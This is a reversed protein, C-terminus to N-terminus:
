APLAEDRPAPGPGGSIPSSPDFSPTQALIQGPGLGGALGRAGDLGNVGSSADFSGPFGAALGPIGAAGPVYPPPDFGPMTPCSCPCLCGKPSEGPPPPSGGAPRNGDLGPMGGSPHGDNPRPKGKPGSAVGDPARAGDVSGQKGARFTTWHSKMRNVQGITFETPCPFSSYDMFNHIPDTFQLSCSHRPQVPCGVTPERQPPTDSVFDGGNPDCPDLGFVGREFTHMLGNWHGIEHTTVSHEDDLVSTLIICGDKVFLVEDPTSQPMTSSGM